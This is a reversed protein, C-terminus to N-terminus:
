FDFMRVSISLSQLAFCRVFRVNFISALRYTKIFLAGFATTFGIHLFAATAACISSSAPLSQFLNSLGVMTGGLVVMGCFVPSASHMTRTSRWRYIFGLLTLLSLLVLVSLSFLVQEEATQLASPQQAVCATGNLASTCTM